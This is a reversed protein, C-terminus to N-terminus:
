RATTEGGKGAWDAHFFSGRPKDIREYTHAGFYDRQAQLLNAPLRACRYGDFFTIAGAMAPVPIGSEVAVAVTKRWGTQCQEVANIFYRDLFLSRLLANKEFADRIKELFVSRIICGARWMSAIKSYDLNWKYKVSAERLLMFGQGYSVIKSAWLAKRLDELVGRRDGAINRPPGKLLESALIREEKMSSLSRAFVAEAILSVPTGFDLSAVSTWKGTGKQGSVDLIKDILFSGDADKVKLIAATIEILYSNLEGRNWEEFATSIEPVSMGLGERMIQYAEGILQLDGYEIGNHTMKVFHGAGNDGVWECCPFGDPTKACISQFINKILPWAAHNGGPMMSPGRRAGEEGGSVGCGVFLMRCAEVRKARRITDIYHSNGGDIICDGPELFPLIQEITEDVAQGAKVMLMVLRPKKLASVLENISHVGVVSKGKAPGNIFDDVKSVTRNYAAVTFGHDAMNLVLNEGMVALGFVAIDAKTTM